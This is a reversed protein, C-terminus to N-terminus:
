RCSGIISAPVSRSRRVAAKPRTTRVSVHSLMATGVGVPVTREVSSELTEHFGVQADGCADSIIAGSPAKASTQRWYGQVAVVAVEVYRVLLGQMSNLVAVAIM